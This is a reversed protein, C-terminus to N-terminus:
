GKGHHAPDIALDSIVWAEHEPDQSLGQVAVLAEGALAALPEGETDTLFPALWEDDM